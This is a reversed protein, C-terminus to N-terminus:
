TAEYTLSFITDTLCRRYSENDIFQKFLRVDDNLVATM